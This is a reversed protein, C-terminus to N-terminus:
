PNDHAPPGLKQQLYRGILITAPYLVEEEEQAHLRLDRAFAAARLKGEAEAAEELEDLAKGIAEHEELFHDLSEEVQRAMEIAPRMEETAGERVLARLVGLP